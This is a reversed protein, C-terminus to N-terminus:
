QKDRMQLAYVAHPVKGDIHQHYIIDLNYKEALAKVEDKSYRYLYESARRQEIPKDWDQTSFQNNEIDNFATDITDFVFFGKDNLFPRHLRLFDELGYEPCHYIWNIGIIVDYKQTLNPKRGDQVEFKIPANISRAIEKAASIAKEDYDYASLNDYYLMYLMYLMDGAGCGTALIAKTKSVNEKIWQYPLYAHARQAFDDYAYIYWEQANYKRVIRAFNEKNPLQRKKRSKHGLFDDLKELNLDYYYFTTEPYFRLHHYRYIEGNKIGYRQTAIMDELHEGESASVRLGFKKCVKYTFKNTRNFPAVFFRVKKHPFLEKLLRLGEKIDQTQEDYSMKSYDTHYLGHLAIEDPIENLYNVLAKNDGIFKGQSLEIIKSNETSGLNFGEYTAPINDNTLFKVNTYGYLNIAHIQTYGHKHFIECFDKFHGLHTDVSVDDNRFIPKKFPNLFKRQKLSLVRIGFLYVRIKNNQKEVKFLRM